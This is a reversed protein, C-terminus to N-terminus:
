SCSWATGSKEGRQAAGSCSFLLSSPGVGVDVREPEDDGEHERALAEELHGVIVDVKVSRTAPSANTRARRASCGSAGSTARTSM